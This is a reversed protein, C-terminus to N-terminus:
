ASGARESAPVVLRWVDAAYVPAFGLSEYLALAGTENKTDVGLGVQTRGRRAMDAMAHRLLLRGLGRGRYAPMVGLNKVWGGNAEVWQEAGMVLGAPEGDLRAVFWQTTDTTNASSMREAWTEYPETVIGFHGAFTAYLLRHVLPWDQVGDIGRITVGAPLPPFAVEAPLATELRSFRRVCAFGAAERWRAGRQDTSVLFCDVRGSAAGREAAVEGVRAVVRAVLVPGLADAVDPHVTVDGDLALTGDAEVGQEVVYAWGLLAGDADAVVWSGRALDVRNDSLEDHVDELTFDPHGIMAVDYAHVLALLAEADQAAPARLILGAPLAPLTETM